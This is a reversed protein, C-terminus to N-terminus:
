FGLAFPVPLHFMSQACRCEASSEVFMGGTKQAFDLHLTPSRGVQISRDEHLPARTDPHFTLSVLAPYVIRGSREKLITNWPRGEKCMSMLTLFFGLAFPYYAMAQACEWVVRSEVFVGGTKQAGVDAQFIQHRLAAGCVVPSHSRASSPRERWLMGLNSSM